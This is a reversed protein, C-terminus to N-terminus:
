EDRKLIWVKYGYCIASEVIAKGLLKETWINDWWLSDM